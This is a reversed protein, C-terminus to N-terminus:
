KIPIWAYLTRWGPPFYSLPSEVVAGETESAHIISGKATVVGTHSYRGGPVWDFALFTDPNRGLVGQLQERSLSSVDLTHPAAQVQETVTREVNVGYARKILKQTLLGCDIYPPDPYGDKQGAGLYYPRGKYGAAALSPRKVTQMLVLALLIWLM